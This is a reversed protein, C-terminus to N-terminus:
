AHRVYEVFSGGREINNILSLMLKLLLLWSVELLWLLVL